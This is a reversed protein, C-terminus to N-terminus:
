PRWCGGDLRARTPIPSRPRGPASSRTPSSPRVAHPRMSTDPGAARAGSSAVAEDDPEEVFQLVADEHLRPQTPVHTQRLRPVEPTKRVALPMRPVAPLKVLPEDDAADPAFLPLAPESPVVAPAAGRAGHTGAGSRDALGPGALSLALAPAEQDPLDRFRDVAPATWADDM